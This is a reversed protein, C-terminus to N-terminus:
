APYENKTTWTHVNELTVGLMRRIWYLCALREPMLELLSTAMLEGLRYPIIDNRLAPRLANAMDLANCLVRRPRDLLKAAFLGEADKNGVFGYEIQDLHLVGDLKLLFGSLDHLGEHSRTLKYASIEEQMAANGSPLSGKLAVFVVCEIAFFCRLRQVSLPPQDAEISTRLDVSAEDEGEFLLCGKYESDATNLATLCLQCTM